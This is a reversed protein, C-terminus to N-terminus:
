SIDSINIIEDKEINFDGKLYREKDREKVYYMVQESYYLEFTTLQALANILLSYDDRITHTIRQLILTGIDNVKNEAALSDLWTNMSEIFDNLNSIKSELRQMELSEQEKKTIKNIMITIAMGYLLDDGSLNGLEEKYYQKYIPRSKSIILNHNNISQTMNKIIRYFESKEDINRVMREIFFMKSICTCTLLVDVLYILADRYYEGLHDLKYNRKSDSIEDNGSLAMIYKVTEFNKISECIKDIYTNCTKRAKKGSQKKPLTARISKKVHSVTSSFYKRVKRKYYDKSFLSNLQEIDTLDYTDKCFSLLVAEIDAKKMSVIFPSDTKSKADSLMIAISSITIIDADDFRSVIAPDPEEDARGNTKIRKISDVFGRAVAFLRSAHYKVIFNKAVKKIKEIAL